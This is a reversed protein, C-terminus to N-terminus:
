QLVAQSPASQHHRTAAVVAQRAAQDLDDLVTIPAPYHARLQEKAMQENTGALRVVLPPVAGEAARRDDRVARLIGEAILDCRMIGGFINVFVARVRADDLLIRFAAAIADPQASGGVDLFNAPRGGHLALLDMTAMALGAGNVLCGIHGDLGIYNLAHAAAQAERPDADLQHEAGIEALLPQHRFAANEDFTIKADFCLVEDQPTIGLPNVEIQTADLSTFLRYLRRMQERAQEALAAPLALHHILQDLQEGTPGTASSIPVKLIASPSAAAVAEIDMGGHPSAVMVVGGLSRDLLIAFYKEEALDRAEAIMVRRVPVGDPGTQHTILRHGLMDGALRGVESLSRTLHVGGQLGSSLRGKGRGGALVQAKVVWEGPALRGQTLQQAAEATDAVVFPQTNVGFSAMLQKSQYEHLHLMRRGVAQRAM